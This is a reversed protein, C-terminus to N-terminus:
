RLGDRHLRSIDVIAEGAGPPEIGLM